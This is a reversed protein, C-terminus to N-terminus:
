TNPIVSETYIIMVYIIDNLTPSNPIIKVFLIVIPIANNIKVNPISHYLITFM